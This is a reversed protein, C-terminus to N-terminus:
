PNSKIENQYEPPLMKINTIVCYNKGSELLEYVFNQDFDELSKIKMIIRVDYTDGYKQYIDEPSLKDNFEVINGYYYPIVYKNKLDYTALKNINDKAGFSYLILENEGFSNLYNFLVGTLVFYFIVSFLLHISYNFFKRDLMLVMLGPISVLLTMVILPILLPEFYMKLSKDVFFYVVITGVAFLLTIGYFFASSFNIFGRYKDEILYKYWFYSVCVSAFSTALIVNSFSHNLFFVFSSILFGIFSILLFKSESNVENFSSNKLLRRVTFVLGFLAIFLISWPMLGALLGIFYKVYLYPQIDINGTNFVYDFLPINESVKYALTKWNYIVLFLSFFGMIFNIPKFLEPLKKSFLYSLILVIFPVIATFLDTFVILFTFLWFGIFFLHKNKENESFLPFCGLLVSILAFDSAFVQPISVSSFTLFSINLFYTLITITSM